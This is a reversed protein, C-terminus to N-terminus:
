AGAAVGGAKGARVLERGVYADGPATAVAGCFIKGAAVNDRGRSPVARCSITAGHGSGSMLSIKEITDVGAGAGVGPAQEPM